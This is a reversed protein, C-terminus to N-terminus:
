MYICIELLLNNVQYLNCILVMLVFPVDHFIFKLPHPERLPVENRMKETEEQFRVGFKIFENFLHFVFLLVSTIYKYQHDISM